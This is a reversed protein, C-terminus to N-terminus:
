KPRVVSAYDRAFLAAHYEKLLEFNEKVTAVFQDMLRECETCGPQPHSPL